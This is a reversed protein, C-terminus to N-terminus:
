SADRLNELDCLSMSYDSLGVLLVGYFRLKGHNNAKQRCGIRNRSSFRSSKALNLSWIRALRLRTGQGSFSAYYCLLLGRLFPQFIIKCYKAATWGSKVFGFRIFRTMKKKGHAKVCRTWCGRLHDQERRADELPRPTQHFNDRCRPQLLPSDSGSFWVNPGFCVNKRLQVWAKLCFLFMAGQSISVSSLPLSRVRREALQKRGKPPISICVPGWNWSRHFNFIPEGSQFPALSEQLTDFLHRSVIHFEPKPPSEFAQYSTRIDRHPCECLREAKSHAGPSAPWGWM